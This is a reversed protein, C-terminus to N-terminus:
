WGFLVFHEKEVDIINLIGMDIGKSEFGEESSKCTQSPQLNNEGGDDQGTGQENESELQYNDTGSENDEEYDQMADDGRDAFPNDLYTGFVEEVIAINEM